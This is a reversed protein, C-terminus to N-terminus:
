HSELKSPREREEALKKRDTKKGGADEGTNMERGISKGDRGAAFLPYITTGILCNLLAGLEGTILHVSVPKRFRLKHLKRSKIGQVTNLCPQFKTVNGPSLLRPSLADV